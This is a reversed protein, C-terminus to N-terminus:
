LIKGFTTAILCLDLINIVDDKNVDAMPNWRPHGPYSLFAAAVTALDEINVKNDYNLDSLIVTISGNIVVYENPWIMVSTPTVLHVDAIEIPSNGQLLAKFTATVLTGNGKSGTEPALLTLGVYGYSGENRFECGAIFINSPDIQPTLFHGKPLEISIGELITENYYLKFEYGFIEERELPVNINIDVTFVAGLEVVRKQPNVFITIKDPM